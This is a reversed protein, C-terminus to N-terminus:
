EKINGINKKLIKLVYIKYGHIGELVRVGVSKQSSSFQTM